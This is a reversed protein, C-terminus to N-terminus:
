INNLNIDKTVYYYKKDPTEDIVVIDDGYNITEGSKSKVNLRIVDKDVIFEASGVNEGQITSRMKGSRGLFDLAEEGFYGVNKYLRVVPITVYHM